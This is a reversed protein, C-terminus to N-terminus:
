QQEWSLMQDITEPESLRQFEKQMAACQRALEQNWRQKQWRLNWEALERIRLKLKEIDQRTRKLQVEKHELHIKPERATLSRDM